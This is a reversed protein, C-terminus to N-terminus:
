HRDVSNKPTIIQIEICHHRPSGNFMSIYQNSVPRFLFSLDFSYNRWSVMAECKRNEPLPQACSDADGAMTVSLWARGRHANPLGAGCSMFWWVAWSLVCSPWGLSVTSVHGHQQSSPALARRPYTQWVWRPMGCEYSLLFPLRAGPVVTM